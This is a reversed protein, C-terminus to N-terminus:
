KIRNSINAIKNMNVSVKVNLFKLLNIFGNYSVYPTGSIFWRYNTKMKQLWEILYDCIGGANNKLLRAFIEHGEDIM